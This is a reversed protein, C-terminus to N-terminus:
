QSSLESWWRQLYGFPLQWTSRSPYLSEMYTRGPFLYARLVRSRAGLSPLTLWDPFIHSRDSRGPNLWWKLMRGEFSPLRYASAVQVVREPIPTGLLEICQPLV